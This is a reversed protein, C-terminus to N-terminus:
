AHFKESAVLVDCPPDSLIGGATGGLKLILGAQGNTGITILDAKQEVVEDTLADMAIGELTKGSIKEEKGAFTKAFYSRETKIFADLMKQQAKDSAVQAAIYVGAEFYSVPINLVHAASFIADPALEMALRMAARSGPAFDVASVIIKYPGTPKDKVMLIPTIGKRIIREITTGVFLDRLKQKSHMGTVILDVKNAYAAELIEFFVEGGQKVTIKTDVGDFDKYENLYGIILEETQKQLSVAPEKNKSGTYDPAIHVIHLRAKQERAIKLAREMARDSNVGLDTACLINKM